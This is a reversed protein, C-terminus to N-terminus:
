HRRYDDHRDDHRDYRHQAEWRAREQARRRELQRQEREYRAREVPSFRRPDHDHDFPAATAATAAFLGLATVFSLLATKM